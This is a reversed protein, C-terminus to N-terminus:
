PETRGPAEARLARLAALARDADRAPVFIHDHYIAAVVNASIGVAALRGSIAATLSVTELSSHINLVIGRLVTPDPLGLRRAVPLPLIATIGERERFLGIPDLAALEPEMNALLVSQTAEGSM